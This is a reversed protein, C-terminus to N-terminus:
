IEPLQVDMNIGQPWEVGMNCLSWQSEFESSQDLDLELNANEAKM